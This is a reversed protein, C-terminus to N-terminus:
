LHKISNIKKAVSLFSKGVITADLRKEGLDSLHKKGHGTLLYVTKCGARIGMEIDSLHDGIVWSKELNINYLSVIEEIFKTSPKKCECGSIHPCFYTQEIKINHEELNKLLHNNFNHFDEVTYYGKEIGSQNTIIFFLYDEKLLKLGEIVGSYIRLTEIKHEYGKDEILTGDRDLFIAKQM